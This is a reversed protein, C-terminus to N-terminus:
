EENSKIIRSIEPLALLEPFDESLTSLGEASIGYAQKFEEVAKDTDDHYKYFIVALLYHIAAVDNYKDTIESIFIELDFAPDIVIKLKLLEIWGSLEEPDINLGNELSRCADEAKELEFLGRAHAFWYDAHMPNISIAQDVAQLGGSFDEKEMLATGMGYWADANEPLETTVLGYFRIALDYNGLQEWCDAIYQYTLLVDRSLSVHEIYADLAEAFQGTHALSNGKNFFAESHNPNLAITYEYAQLADVFREEKNFLIGLNYWGNESFPNVDLLRQYTAISRKRYGTRDLAFALEFLANEQNPNIIVLKELFPVAEEFRDMQNLNYGIELLVEEKDEFAMDAAKHFNDVALEVEGKQLYIWGLTIYVETNTSEIPAVQQLISLAEELQGQDALMGAQKVRLSSSQPHQRLGIQLIHNAQDFLSKEIYFEFISEIQHVDFYVEKDASIMREFREIAELVDDNSAHM